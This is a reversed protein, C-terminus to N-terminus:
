RLSRFHNRLIVTHIFPRWSLNSLADSALDCAARYPVGTVHNVGSDSGCVKMLVYTRLVKRVGIMSVYGLVENM